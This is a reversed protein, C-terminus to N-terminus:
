RRRVRVSASASRRVGGAATLTVANTLVGPRASRAVRVPVRLTRNAGPRVTGLTWCARGRAKQAGRPLRGFALRRGPADCVVVGRAAAFGRNAVRLTFTVTRGAFTRTRSAAVTLHLSAGRAVPLAPEPARPTV